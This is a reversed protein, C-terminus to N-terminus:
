PVPPDQVRERSGFFATGMLYLAVLVALPGLVYRAVSSGVAIWAVGLALVLLGLLLWYVRYMVSPHFLLSLVAAVIGTLVSVALPLLSLLLGVIVDWLSGMSQAGEERPAFVYWAVMAGVFGVLFAFMAAVIKNLIHLGREPNM